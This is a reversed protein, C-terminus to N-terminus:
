QQVKKNRILIRAYKRKNNVVGCGGRDLENETYKVSGYLKTARSNGAALGEIKFQDVSLKNLFSIPVGMVGPYDMPIDAAKDVNIADYNDYKPYENPLYHKYLILDEHREEYDLNTFWLVNRFKVRRTEPDYVGKAFRSTDYGEPVIFYANGHPFPMGLWMQNNMLLPFIEKYTIANQSGIILFKKKYDMLQKVYPRFKSFPPNTVVIDAQKLYKICENSQYDGNGKLRNVVGKMHLLASIDNDNVGRGNAMPVYYVDLVYGRDGTVPENYDDFLSLQTGTIKSGAYSTCILRKLGLYNFNRLFFRTFNSEFPDDCNCLVVKNKFTGNSFYNIESQISDYTTYFEDQKAKAARSLSKNKAM